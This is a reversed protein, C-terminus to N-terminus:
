RKLRQALYRRATKELDTLNGSDDALQSVAADHQRQAEQSTARAQETDGKAEQLRARERLV